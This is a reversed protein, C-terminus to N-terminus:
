PQFIPETQGEISLTINKVTPFQLLTQRIQAVRMAM